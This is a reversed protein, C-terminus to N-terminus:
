FRLKSFTLPSFSCNLRVYVFKVIEDMGKERHMYSISYSNIVKHSIFRIRVKFITFLELASPSTFFKGLNIIMILCRKLVNILQPQGKLVRLLYTVYLVKDIM